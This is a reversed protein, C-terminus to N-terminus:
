HQDFVIVLIRIPFTAGPGRKDDSIEGDENSLAAGLPPLATSRPPSTRRQSPCMQWKKRFIELLFIRPEKTECCSVLLHDNAVRLAAFKSCYWAPSSSAIMVSSRCRRSKDVKRLLSGPLKSRFFTKGLFDTTKKGFFHCVKKPFVVFNSNGENSGSCNRARRPPFPVSFFKRRLQTQEDFSEDSNTEDSSFGKPPFVTPPFNHYIWWFKDYNIM